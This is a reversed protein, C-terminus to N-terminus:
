HMTCSTNPINFIIIFLPAVFPSTFLGLAAGDLIM